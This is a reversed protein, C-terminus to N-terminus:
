QVWWQYIAEDVGAGESCCIKTRVSASSLPSSSLSSTWIPIRATHDGQGLACRRPWQLCRRGSCPGTTRSKVAAPVPAM